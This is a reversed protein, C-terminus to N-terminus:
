DAMRKYYYDAPMDPIKKQTYNDSDVTFQIVMGGMGTVRIIYKGRTVNKFVYSGDKSTLVTKAGPIKKIISDGFSNYIDQALTLNQKTNQMIVIRKYSAPYQNGRSQYYIKGYIMRTVSQSIGRGAHFSLIVILFIKLCYPIKKM